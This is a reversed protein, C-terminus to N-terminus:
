LGRRSKENRLRRELRHMVEESIAGMQSRVGQNIMNQISAIDEENTVQNNETTVRHVENRQEVTEIEETQEERMRRREQRYQELTEELEEATLSESRRHVIEAEPAPVAKLSEGAPASEQRRGFRELEERAESEAEGTERLILEQTRERETVREIDQLLLSVDNSIVNTDGETVSRGSFFQELIQLVRGRDDPFLRIIEQFAERKAEAEREEQEELSEYVATEGELAGLSERRTREAGDERRQRERVRSLISLIQRYTSVANRNNEEVERVQERILELNEERRNREETILEENEERTLELEEERHDIVTTEFRDSTIVNLRSLTNDSSRYMIKRFDFWQNEERSVREYGVSILNKVLDLMVASTIENTVKEGANTETVFEQEYVNGVQYLYRTRDARFYDRVTQRLVERAGPEGEKIETIQREEILGSEGPLLATVSQGEETEYLDGGYTEERYILEEGERIFSNFIRQTLIQKATEGQESLSLEPAGIETLVPSQSFNSIIQYIAGTQLRNMIQTSLRNEFYERTERPEEDRRSRVEEVIWNLVDRRLTNGEEQFYLDILTNNEESQRIYRRVETMFRRDDRIGLKNLCDTIYTRDQYTLPTEVSLLIRNLVNNIIDLKEENKANIVTNGTVTTIDGEAIFIEPPTTVVHLLDEAEVASGMMSYRDTLRHAFGENDHVFGTRNKLEIPAKITLM